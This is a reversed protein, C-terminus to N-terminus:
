KALEYLAKAYINTIRLLHSVEIYENRQHEVLEQGPLVPGFAM